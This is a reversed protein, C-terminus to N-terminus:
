GGKKVRKGQKADEDDKRKVAVKRKGVQLWKATLQQWEQEFVKVKKMVELRIRAINDGASAKRRETEAAKTAEGREFMVRAEGTEDDRYKELRQKETVMLEDIAILQNRHSQTMETPAAGLEERAKKEIAKFEIKKAAKMKELEDQRVDMDLNIRDIQQAIKSEFLNREREIEAEREKVHNNLDNEIKYIKVAAEAELTKRDDDLSNGRKLLDAGEHRLSGYFWDDEEPMNNLTNELDERLNESRVRFRSELGDRALRVWRLALAKTAANIEIAAITGDLATPAEVGVADRAKKMKAQRLKHAYREMQRKADPRPFPGGLKKRAALLWKSMMLGEPSTRTVVVPEFEIDDEEEDSSIDQPRSIRSAGPTRSASLLREQEMADECKTCRTCYEANARFYAKWLGPDLEDPSYQNEFGAILRDVAQLDPQGKWAMM